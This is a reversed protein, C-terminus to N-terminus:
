REFNRQIRDVGIALSDLINFWVGDAEGLLTTNNEILFPYSLLGLLSGANSVAYLRYPFAVGADHSGVGLLATSSAPIFVCALGVSMLIEAPLVHSWYATDQTIQTLLLMGAVAMVLGPIM